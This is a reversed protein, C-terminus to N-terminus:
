KKNNGFMDDIMDKELMAKGLQSAIDDNNSNSNGGSIGIFSIFLIVVIFIVWFM